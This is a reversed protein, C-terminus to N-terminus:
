GEFRGWLMYDADEGTGKIDVVISDGHRLLSARETQVQTKYDWTCSCTTGKDEIDTCDVESRYSTEWQMMDATVDVREGDVLEGVDFRLIQQGFAVDPPHGPAMANKECEYSGETRLTWMSGDQEFVPDGIIFDPGEEPVGICGNFPFGGGKMYCQGRAAATECVDLYVVYDGLNADQLAITRDYDSGEPNDKIEGHVSVSYIPTPTVDLDPRVMLQGDEVINSEGPFADGSGSDSSDEDPDPSAFALGASGEAAVLTGDCADPLVADETEVWVGSDPDLTQMWGNGFSIDQWEGVGPGGEGEGEGEENGGEGPGEENGGESGVAGTGGDAMGDDADAACATALCMAMACWRLKLDM